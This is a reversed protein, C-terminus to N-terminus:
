VTEKALLELLGAGPDCSLNKEQVDEFWDDGEEDDDDETQSMEATHNTITNIVQSSEDVMKDAQTRSVVKSVLAKTLKHKRIKRSDRAKEAVKKHIYAQAQFGEKDVSVIPSDQFLIGPTKDKNLMPTTSRLGNKGFYSTVPTRASHLSIDHESDSDSDEALLTKTSPKMLSPKSMTQLPEGFIDDEHDENYEKLAEANQQRQKVTKPNASVRRLIDETSKVPKCAPVSEESKKFPNVVTRRPSEVVKNKQKRNQTNKTKSGDRQRKSPVEEKTLEEPTGYVCSERTMAKTKEINRGFRSKNDVLHKEVSTEAEKNVCPEENVASKNKALVALHKKTRMHRIHDDKRDTIVGCVNCSLYKKEKCTKVMKAHKSTMLHDFMDSDQEYSVDCAFCVFTGLGPVHYKRSKNIIPQSTSEDVSPANSVVPSKKGSVKRSTSALISKSPNKTKLISKPPTNSVLISKLPPSKRTKSKSREYSKSRTDTEKSGKSKSRTSKVVQHVNTLRSRATVKDAHKKSKLHSIIGSKSKAKVDCDKCQYNNKSVTSQAVQEELSPMTGEDNKAGEDNLELNLPTVKAPSVSRRPKPKAPTPTAFVSDNSQARSTTHSPSQSSTVGEALHNKKIHLKLNNFLPTHFDCFHCNYNKKKNVISTNNYNKARLLTFDHQSMTVEMVNTQLTTERLTETRTSNKNYRVTKSRSRRETTPALTVTQEEEEISRLPSRSRSKNKSKPTKKCGKERNWTGPSSPPIVEFQPRTTDLEEEPLISLNPGVNISLQPNHSRVGPNLYRSTNGSIASINSLATLNSMVMNTASTSNFVSMNTTNIINQENFKIWHNVIRSWNEPFGDKFKDLVFNPTPGDEVMKGGEEPRIVLPGELVYTTGGKTAVRDKCVRRVIRSTVWRQDQGVGMNSSDLDIIDGEVYLRKNRLRPIWSQLYRCEGQLHSVDEPAEKRKKSSSSKTVPPKKFNFTVESVVSSAKTPPAVPPAFGLDAESPRSTGAKFPHEKNKEGHKTMESGDDGENNKRSTDEASSIPKNRKNFRAPTPQFADSPRPLNELAEANKGSNNVRNDGPLESADLRRIKVFAGTLTKDATTLDKVGVEGGVEDGPECVLTKELSRRALTNVPRVPSPSFEERLEHLLNNQIPSFPLRERNRAPSSSQVRTKNNDVNEKDSDNAQQSLSRVTMNKQLNKLNAMVLKTQKAVDAAGLNAGFNVSMFRGPGRNPTASGGGVAKPVPVKPLSNKISGACSGSLGSVQSVNSSVVSIGGKHATSPKRRGIVIKRPSKSQLVPPPPKDRMLEDDVVNSLYSCKVSM